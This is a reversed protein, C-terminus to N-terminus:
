VKKDVEEPVKNGLLLGLPKLGEIRDFIIKLIATFPISLFMGWIGWLAGGAIVVVISILANISVKSGVVHPILFNNDILQVLLLVGVVLVPFLLSESTVLAMAIALVIAILGGIYPIVNLIAAIVGILIAYDLGVILLGVSNLIAVIVAEILLGSIYKQIMERTEKLVDGVKNKNERRFVRILFEIFLNRYYLFLYVYVPILGLFIIIGTIANFTTAMYKGSNKYQEQLKENTWDIQKRTSIHFKQEMWTHLSNLHASLREKLKPIDESFHAVQSSIFYVILGGVIIAIFICLLISLVRPVKHREFFRCLPLLLVALLVSFVLPILISQLFYICVVFLMLGLLVLTFRVYYPFRVENL